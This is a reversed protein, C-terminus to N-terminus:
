KGLRYKFDKYSFDTLKTLTDDSNLLYINPLPMGNFTNSKVSTYLATDGFVLLDGVNPLKSFAYTGFNDGSLCTPGGLNALVNYGNIDTQYLYPKFPMEVVDPNHCSASTDLIIFNMDNSKFVDLAKSVIYGGNLVCAEGPELYIDLKYKNKMYNICEILLDKDYDSRTIHHGGGFNLWKLNKFYKSFKNEFEILTVKLDNSNQQCLTHFHLGDLMNILNPTMERMFQDITVGLRSKKSCPDYIEHGVQTSKEPNIRLGIEKNNEKAIAGYRKLQSVSNFVIHDAYKLLENFDDDGYAASFVHVEKNPMEEKALRAEYLGSAECGALYKSFLPFLDYNSFCKLALLIKCGTKNEIDNLIKLDYTIADIDLVYAPTKINKFLENIDSKLFRKFPDRLDDM